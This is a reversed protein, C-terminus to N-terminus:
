HFKQQFSKVNLGAMEKQIKDSGLYDTLANLNVTVDIGM